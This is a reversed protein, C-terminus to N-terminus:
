EWRRMATAPISRRTCAPGSRPPSMDVEGQAQPVSQEVRLAPTEAWTQSRHGRRQQRGGAVHPGRQRLEALPM